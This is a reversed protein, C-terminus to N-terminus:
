RDIDDKKSIDAGVAIADGGSEKIAAVVEQAPGESAAFNVVVQCLVLFHHAATLAAGSLPHCAAAAACLRCGGRHHLERQCTLQTTGLQCPYQRRWEATKRSM